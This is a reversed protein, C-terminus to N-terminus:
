LRDFLGDKVSDLFAAWEARSLTLRGGDPGSSSRVLVADEVGAVEVCAGSECQRGQQWVLDGAPGGDVLVGVKTRL